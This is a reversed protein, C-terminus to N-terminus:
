AEQYFAFYDFVPKEEVAPAEHIEEIYGWERGCTAAKRIHKCTYGNLITPVEGARSAKRTISDQFGQCACTCAGTELNIRQQYQVPYGDHCLENGSTETNTVLVTGQATPALEVFYVPKNHTSRANQKVTM